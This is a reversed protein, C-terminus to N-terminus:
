PVLLSLSGNRAPAAAPREILSRLAHPVQDAVEGALIGWPGRAAATFDGALGHCYVGLLTATLASHGQALFSVIMGTLVDGMGGTAMGPNGTPNVYVEGSPTAVITRAGKLVVTVGFKKACALSVEVRNEQIEGPSTGLLRALEGPHPTIVIESKSELLAATQGALVNIGDADLVLPIRVRPILDRVLAATEPNRALGPGVAVARKGALHALITELARHGAVGPVTEPLPLLMAEPLSDLTPPAQSEPLAVTVLGAGARLAGRAALVAAGVFGWSGAVILAHGYTGKHSEPDRPLIMGALDEATLLHRSLHLLSEIGPPFGIDALWLRGVNRAAPFLLLGPKPLGFTVTAAAFVAAGRVRGEDASLGSPIDVALVPAGIGNIAAIAAAAFGKAPPSFGTGFVADVVLDAGRSEVSATELATIETLAQVELGCRSATTLNAKTDPKLDQFSSLVYVRPRAGNQLLVRAAVLGDGGNNGKGCFVIVRRGSVSGLFAAAADAVRRGANEMLVATPIGYQEAVLRDLDAMERATALKM